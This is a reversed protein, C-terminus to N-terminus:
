LVASSGSVRAGVLMLVFLAANILLVVVLTRRQERRLVALAESDQDCFGAGM